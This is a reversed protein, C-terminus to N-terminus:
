HVWGSPLDVALISGSFASKAVLFSCFLWTEGLIQDAGLFIQKVKAAPSSSADVESTESVRM